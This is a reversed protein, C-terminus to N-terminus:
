DQEEMKKNFAELDAMTVGKHVLNIRNQKDIESVRVLLEDGVNCVDEVREVRKNDLKSIHVLGEKGPAVEVFAGFQMLRTVKGMYVDGAKVERTIGLIIAKAKKAAESDPTAIFVRGDEDIDIKVGTEAIIKNIMKGGPGIVERSKETDITFQIIKPAYPSLEEKAEPLVENMKGLIHLRGRLAQALARELIERDIGKIKIDMQIATIGEATGAVKFDMDGLFDELGQIDTLVGVKEEDKILGMATGAVPKKMPVGADMLALSSACVSAQSTSGNSSLVESVARIAYPFEDEGPLMPSIAREALAGHGIERRNASRIPRAEGTSFPPMNYQHMYRKFTDESIGDLTQGDGIPGLTVIDMVQTEGRTFVASGHTRPLIGTECWIPRVDEYGRGDPRVGDHVIKKRVIEKMTYYLSDEIDARGEPFLETFYEVAEAKVAAERESREKRDFPEMAWVIIDYFKERVAADLEEPIEHMEYEFDPKGIEDKIGQIFACIKKIEEHAFLIAGLMEDESIENAGAEVMMVADKTGSVTLHLDSKERQESNPNLVYEGDIMGVVVSGTPGAFPLGSISLAVSSGVMAWIEPPIDPEVSLVTAIVQVDNRFGKPFLPRLPRDILRCSLVAKESPRGERKIFGGPIKGVSYMKEEFEISLPFFDIGDRPKESATASVMVVTDGCRVTCSGTAQGCYKGSEVVVERGGVEMKFVHNEM